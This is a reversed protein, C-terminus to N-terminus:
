DSIKLTKFMQQAIPLYTNFKDPSASYVFYYSEPSKNMLVIISKGTDNTSTLDSKGSNNTSIIDMEYAPTRDSLKTKEVNTINNGENVRLKTVYELYLDLPMNKYPLDKQKGITVSVFDMSPSSENFSITSSPEFVTTLDDNSFYNTYENYVWDIPYKIDQGVSSSTYQLYSNQAFIANTSILTILSMSLFTTALSIKFGLMDCAIEEAFLFTKGL